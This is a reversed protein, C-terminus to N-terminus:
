MVNGYAIGNLVSEVEGVGEDTTLMEIPKRGGLAPAPSCFWQTVAEVTSFIKRAQAWVQLIRESKGNV